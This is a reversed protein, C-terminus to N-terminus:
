DNKTPDNKLISPTKDDTTDMSNYNATAGGGSAAPASSSVTTKSTNNKISNLIIRHWDNLYFLTVMRIVNLITIQFLADIWTTVPTFGSSLTCLLFGDFNFYIQYPLKSVNSVTAAQYMTTGVSESSALGAVESILHTITPKTINERTYGPTDTDPPYAIQVYVPRHNSHNTDNNDAFLEMHLTEVYGRLAYKTPAYSTYGYLGCQGGMSCTFTITSYSGSIGSGTSAASNKKLFPLFANTTYITGLQNMLTAQYYQENTIDTHHLPNAEGVCLFLHTIMNNNNSSSTTTTPTMIEQAAKNIAIPDTVDVSVIDVTPTTTTTTSTNVQKVQNTDKNSNPTVVVDRLSQQAQQLKSVNRAVIVIRSIPIQQSKSSSSSVQKSAEQAAAMAIAYGIGTSGGIVIIQRQPSPSELKSSTTNNQNKKKQKTQQVSPDNSLLLFSM